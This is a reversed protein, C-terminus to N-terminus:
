KGGKELAHFGEVSLSNLFNRTQQYAVFGVEKLLHNTHERMREASERILTASEKNPGDTAITRLEQEVIKRDVAYVDRFLLEPWHIRGIQRDLEDPGLRVYLDTPSPPERQAAAARREAMRENERAEKAERELRQMKEFRSRNILYQEQARQAIVEANANDVAAAARDKQAAAQARIIDATPDAVVTPFSGWLPFGYGPNYGYGVTNGYGVPNGYGYGYVEPYGFDTPSFFPPFGAYGNIGYGYGTYAPLSFNVNNSPQSNSRFRWGYRGMTRNGPSQAAATECIALGIVSLVLLLMPRRLANATTTLSYYFRYRM